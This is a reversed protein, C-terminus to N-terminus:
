AIFEPRERADHTIELRSLRDFVGEPLKSLSNDELNLESM